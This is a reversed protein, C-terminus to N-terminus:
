KLRCVISIDNVNTGTAGTIITSSVKKFFTNSDHKHLYERVVMKKKAIKSLIRPSIFAGAAKSNGDIGDTGLCVVAFEKDTWLKFKSSAALVAEQNRGGIGVRGNNLEVTTEGGLVFAYPASEPLFDDVLKFLFEGLNSPSGTFSSGLNMAKIGHKTLYRSVAECAIANNGILINHVNKFIPNSPKPTDAIKKQAGDDIIRRISKSIVKKNDWLKYKQLILKTDKFTTKDPATPGSAITEIKDTTVDSLILSLITTGFEAAAALKGGKIGSLHKRVTNIEDISAGSALLGSTVKQKEGLTTGKIPLPMLASGGGSILVFILDKCTAKEIVALIKKTGELGNEDPLPHSAKTVFSGLRKTELNYPVTIACEKIRKGFVHKLGCLMGAVAKGAGVAYISEFSSLDFRTVQGNVDSINLIREAIKIRNRVLLYPVVSKLGSQGAGMAMRVSNADTKEMLLRSLNKIKAAVM